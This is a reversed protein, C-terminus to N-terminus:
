RASKVLDVNTGVNFWQAAKVRTSASGLIGRM